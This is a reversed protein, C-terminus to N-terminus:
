LKLARFTWRKEAQLLEICYLGPSIQGADWVIRGNEAWLMQQAIARGQIDHIFFEYSGQCGSFILQNLFPNQLVPRAPDIETPLAATVVPIKNQLLTYRRPSNRLVTQVRTRQCVTFLNMCRDDSYDMFNQIMATENLCDKAQLNCGYNATGSHPTDSCYDGDTECSGFTHYLGFFHGLEHTLTRGLGYAPKLKSHYLGFNQYDVVVGDQNPNAGSPLDGLAITPFSSFGLLSSIDCVWINIYRETDWAFLPMITNLMDSQSYPPSPLGHQEPNIRHIGPEALKQGDPSLTALGLVIDLKAALPKFISPTAITDANSRTFDLNTAHIQALVDRASLNSGVGLSDSSIIHVVVPLTDFGYRSSPLYSALQSLGQEFVDREQWYYVNCQASVTAPLCYLITTFWVWVRM